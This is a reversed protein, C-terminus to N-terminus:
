TNSNNTFLSGTSLQTTDHLVNQVVNQDHLYKNQQYEQVEPDKTESFGVNLPNGEMVSSELELRHMLAVIQVDRRDLSKTLKEIALTIEQFQDDPVSMMEIIMVLKLFEESSTYDCSKQPSTVHTSRSISTDSSM